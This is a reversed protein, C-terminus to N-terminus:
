YLIAGALYFLGLILCVSSSVYWFLDSNGEFRSKLLPFLAARLLFITAVIMLIPSTFPLTPSGKAATFAYTACIALVGGVIIAAVNPYWSGKEAKKVLSEGAGLFRFGAAGWFLCAFHLLAAILTFISALYLTYSGM